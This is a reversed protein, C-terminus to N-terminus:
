ASHTENIFRLMEKTRHKWTYNNMAVKNANRGIREAEKPNDICYQYREIVGELTNALFGTEYDKIISRMGISDHTLCPIGSGMIEFCKQGTVGDFGLWKGFHSAVALVSSNHIRCIEPHMAYGDRIVNSYGTLDYEDPLEKISGRLLFM